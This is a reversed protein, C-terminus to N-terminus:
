ELPVRRDRAARELLITFIRRLRDQTDPAPNVDVGVVRLEPADGAPRQKRSQRKPEEMDDLRLPKGGPRREGTVPRCTLRRRPVSKPHAGSVRRTQHLGGEGGRGAGPGGGLPEDPLGLNM